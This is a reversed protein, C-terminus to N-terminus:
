KPKGLLLDLSEKLYDVTIIFGIPNLYTTQPFLFDYFKSYPRQLEIPVVAFFIGIFSLGDQTKYYVPSGSSGHMNPPNYVSIFYDKNSFSSDGVSIVTDCFPYVDDWTRKSYGYCFLPTNPKIEWKKIKNGLEIPSIITEGRLNDLKILAIDISVTKTETNVPISLYTRKGNEDHLSYNISEYGKANKSYLTVTIRDWENNKNKLAFISTDEWTRGTIVHYNTILFYDKKYKIIFATGRGSTYTIQLLNNFSLLSDTILQVSKYQLSDNKIIRDKNIQSNCFLSIILSTILVLYKM